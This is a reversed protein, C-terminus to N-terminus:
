SVTSRRRSICYTSIVDKVGIEIEEKADVNFSVDNDVLQEGSSEMKASVDVAYFLYRPMKMGVVGALCPCSHIGSCM